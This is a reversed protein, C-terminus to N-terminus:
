IIGEIGRGAVKFIVLGCVMYKEISLMRRRHHEYILPTVPSLLSLTDM